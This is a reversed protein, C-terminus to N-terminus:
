FTPKLSSRKSTFFPYPRLKKIGWPFATKAVIEALFTKFSFKFCLAKLSSFITLSAFDKPLLNIFISIFSTELTELPSLSKPEIVECSITAKKSELPSDTSLFNMLIGPLDILLFQYIHLWCEGECLRSYEIEM